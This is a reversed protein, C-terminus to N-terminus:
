VLRKYKETPDGNSEWTENIKLYETEQKFQIMSEKNKFDWITKKLIKQSKCCTLNVITTNHDSPIEVPKGRKKTYNTLTWLREEDIAINKVKDFMEPNTVIYDITFNNGKPDIRTIKGKWKGSSNGLILGRREIMNRLAEGGTDISRNNGTIRQNDNGIHANFDGIIM